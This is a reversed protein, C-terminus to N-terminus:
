GKLHPEGAHHSVLEDITFTVSAQRGSWSVDARGTLQLLGQGAFDVFLLGARPSATLNGLTNFMNNGPYDPFSLTREDLVHVFGAPGGRHSADAGAVPHASAIFFTDAAEILWRHAPSISKAATAETLRSPDLHVERPQIYQPCNAYGERVSLFIRGEPDLMARGNVRVRLRTALDIGLLGLEARAALNALIPDRPAHVPKLLLLEDDVSSLFGARGTLLSAWIRDRDDVSAAVAMRLGTLAKRLPPSLRPRVMGRLQAAAESVGAREQVAREGPHFDHSM